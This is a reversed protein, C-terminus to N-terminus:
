KPLEFRTATIPHDGRSAENVRRHDKSSTGSAATGTSSGAKGSPSKNEKKSTRDPQTVSTQSSCAAFGEKVAEEIAKRVKESDM